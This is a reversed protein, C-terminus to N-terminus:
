VTAELPYIYIRYAILLLTYQFSNVVQLAIQMNTTILIFVGDSASNSFQWIHECFKTRKMYLMYIYIYVYIQETENIM